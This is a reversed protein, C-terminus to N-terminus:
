QGQKSLEVTNFIGQKEAQKYYKPVVRISQKVNVNAINAENGGTNSNLALGSARRRLRFVGLNM